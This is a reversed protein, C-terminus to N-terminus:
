IVFKMVLIMHKLFLKENYFYYNFFKFKDWIMGVMTCYILLSSITLYEYTIM